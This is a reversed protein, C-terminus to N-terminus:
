ILYKQSYMIHLIINIQLDNIFDITYLLLYLKCKSAKFTDSQASHATTTTAAPATITACATKSQM